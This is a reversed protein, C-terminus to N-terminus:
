ADATVVVPEDAVANEAAEDAASKRKSGPSDSAPFSEMSMEDVKDIPKQDLDGGHPQLESASVWPTPTDGTPLPAHSGERPDEPAAHDAQNLNIPHDQNSEAIHSQQPRM